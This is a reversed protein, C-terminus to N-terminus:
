KTGTGGPANRVWAFLSEEKEWRVFNVRAGDWYEKVVGRWFEVLDEDITDTYRLTIDVEESGPNIGAAPEGHWEALYTLKVM